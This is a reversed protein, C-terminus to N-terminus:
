AVFEEILRAVAEPQDHHLMHGADPVTVYRLDRFAARREAHQADSLGIRKLTDSEAADVWLVPAQIQAWCARVEEYRYLVPNVIKHAPDGRLTVSGDENERGWHRALFDAKDKSLRKNSEALRQALAAFGRYPRLGPPDRLEELWRAYREPAQEPRTPAM